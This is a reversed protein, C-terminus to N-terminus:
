CLPENDMVVLGVDFLTDLEEEPCKDINRWVFRDIKALSAEPILQLCGPSIGLYCVRSLNFKLAKCIDDPDMVMPFDEDYPATLKLERISLPSDGPGFAPLILLHYLLDVPIQLSHLGDLETLIQTPRDKFMEGNLRHISLKTLTTRIQENMIIHELVPTNLDECRCLRLEILKPPWRFYFMEEADFQGGIKLCELNPPWDEGDYTISM